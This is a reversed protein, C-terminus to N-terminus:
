EHGRSIGPAALRMPQHAREGIKRKGMIKDSLRHGSKPIM